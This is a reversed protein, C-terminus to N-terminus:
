PLTAHSLLSNLMLNEVANLETLELSLWRTTTSILGMTIAWNIWLKSWLLNTPTASLVEVTVVPANFLGANVLINLHPVPSLLQMTGIKVQGNIPLVLRSEVLRVKAYFKKTIVLARSLLPKGIATTTQNLLQQLKHQQKHQEQLKHQQQVVLVNALIVKVLPVVIILLIVVIGM